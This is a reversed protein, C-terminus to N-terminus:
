TWRKPISTATILEQTVDELEDNSPKWKGFSHRNAFDVSAEINRKLDGRFTFMPRARHLSLMRERATDRRLCGCSKVGGSTLNNTAVISREGCSCLCYWHRGSKSSHVERLVHLRGFKEGTLDDLDRM